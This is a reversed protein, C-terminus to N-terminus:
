GDAPTAAVVEVAPAPSELEEEDQGEAPIEIWATEGTECTQITPFYITEGAADDPIRVSLEFTERFGNPVPEDATYVVETVRETIEEGFAGAIPTDLTETVKEVDWEAKMTPAVTPMSEPMQIRIETTPSDECGHTFAFTLVAFSGAEVEGEDITVHASASGGVAGFVAVGAAIGAALRLLRSKQMHHSRPSVTVM